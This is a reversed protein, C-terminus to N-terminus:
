IHCADLVGGAENVHGKGELHSIHQTQKKNKKCQDNVLLDYFWLGPFDM